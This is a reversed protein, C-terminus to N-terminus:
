ITNTKLHKGIVSYKHEEIRLHLHRSTYGIYNTDCSNCKFEYVVCQQNVLSPKTETVKLDESIKRSTFVPQLVRDIKKGLDSLQRRVSDASKQDKFPLIILVPYKLKLFVTKLDQCEKSFLDPSSSLRKARDLMTRMLSRKYRNDVHSQYHLLLGKNTNKRYVCTNFRNDTKTIVMGVFPLSNNVATEMTFQIAPHADNLVSLFDTAAALDPVLAFIDDVYRRYFDPLKNEHALKEESSCMFTSVMLPGLPSGM